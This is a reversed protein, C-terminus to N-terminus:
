KAYVHEKIQYDFIHPQYIKSDQWSEINVDSGGNEKKSADSFNVYMIAGEHYYKELSRDNLYGWHGYESGDAYYVNNRDRGGASWSNWQTKKGSDFRNFTINYASAPVRVSWTENDVKTMIYHDHGHTNDVLEMVANDNKVWKERTNDIFYLTVAIGDLVFGNGVLPIIRGDEMVAEYTVLYETGKTSSFDTEPTFSISDSGTESVALNLPAEYQYVVKKDSTDIIKIIMQGNTVDAHGVNEISSDITITNKVDFRKDSLMLEGGLSIEPIDPINITIKTTSSSVLCEEDYVESRIMYIGDTYNATNWVEQREVYGNPMIEPLAKTYESVAEGGENIVTIINILNKSIRNGLNNHIRDFIMVDQYPTYEPQDTSVGNTIKSYPSIVPLTVDRAGATRSIGNEDMYKLNIECLLVAPTKALLNTPETSITFELNEGICLKDYKQTFIRGDYLTGTFVLDTAIIQDDIKVRKDEERSIIYDYISNKTTEETYDYYVGKDMISDILSQYQTKNTDNGLGIFTINKDVIKQAVAGVEEETSFNDIANDSLNIVYRSSQSEFNYNDLIDYLKEGTITQMTINAFTFYSRQSCAHSAHSTIPGYGNGYNKPLKYNDIILTEGDWLSLAHSDASIKIHHEDYLNPFPFTKLLTGATASNRFSSLKVKDLSYLKLGGSTILVYYGSITDDEIVTDFLFGGGNMSHWDTKDRQIDFALLKQSDNTDPVILFDKYPDYRYGTMKINDGDYIIHKTYPSQTDYNPHDYETWAFTDKATLYSTKVTCLNIIYGQKELKKKVEEIQDAYQTILATDESSTTLVLDVVREDRIKVTIEANDTSEYLYDKNVDRLIAVSKDSVFYNTTSQAVVFDNFLVEATIIYTRRESTDPMFDGLYIADATLDAEIIGKSESSVNEGNCDINWRISVNDKEKSYNQLNLDAYISVPNKDGVRSFSQSLSLLVNDIALKHKILFTQTMETVTENNSSRKIEVRVTYTGEEYDGTNWVLNEIELPITEDSPTEISVQMYAKETEFESETKINVNENANFSSVSYGKDNTISVSDLKVIITNQERVILELFLATAMPDDFVGGNDSQLEYYPTVDFRGTTKLKFSATYFHQYVGQLNDASLKDISIANADLYRTLGSITDVLTDSLSKNETICDALIDAIEATLEPNSALGPQYSFGGDNNQLSIIYCIAELIVKSAEETKELDALAKLALKTDIIDSTYGKHLGYGGDTNQSDSLRIAEEEDRIDDILLYRSLDDINLIDEMYFYDSADNLMGLVKDSKHENSYIYELINAIDANINKGGWTGNELQKDNMYSISLEVTNYVLEYNPSKLVKIDSSEEAFVSIPLLYLVQVVAILLALLRVKKM